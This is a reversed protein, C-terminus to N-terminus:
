ESITQHVQQRRYLKLLTRWLNVEVFSEPALERIIPSLEKLRGHSVEPFIHHEVHRGFGMHTIPFRECMYVSVSNLLPKNKLTLFATNHNSLIYLNCIVQGLIVPLYFGFFSATFGLIILPILFLSIVFLYEVTMVVKESFKLRKDTTMEIYMMFHHGIIVGFPVFLSIADSFRFKKFLHHIRTKVNSFDDLDPTRARDPDDRGGTTAHHKNHWKRWVTPSCLVFLGSILALARELPGRRIIAGHLLEHFFFFFFASTNITVLCSLSWFFCNILGHGFLQTTIALHVLVTALAILLYM